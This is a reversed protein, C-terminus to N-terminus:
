FICLMNRGLYSLRLLYRTHPLPTAHVPNQHHFRLYLPWHPCGPTSPLIFNRHNKLFHSPTFPGSQAPEPYPCTAPVQLHPLSGLHEIFHPYNSQSYAPLRRLFSEAGHLLYNLLYTLVYTLLYTLLYNHRGSSWQAPCLSDPNMFYSHGVLRLLFLVAVWSNLSVCTCWIAPKEASFRLRSRGLVSCFHKGSLWFRCKVAKLEAVSTVTGTNTTLRISGWNVLV